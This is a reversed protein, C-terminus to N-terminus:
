RLSKKGGKGWSGTTELRRVQSEQRRTSSNTLPFHCAGVLYTLGSRRRDIEDTWGVRPTRFHGCRGGKMKQIGEREKRAGSREVGRGPLYAIASSKHQAEARYRAEGSLRYSETKHRGGSTWKTNGFRAVTRGGTMKYRCSAQMGREWGIRSIRKGRM